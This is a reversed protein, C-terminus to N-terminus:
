FWNVNTVGDETFRFWGGEDEGEWGGTSCRTELALAAYAAAACEKDNNWPSHNEKLWVSVYGGKAAKDMVICNIMPAPRAITQDDPKATLSLQITGNVSTPNSVTFYITLWDIIQETTARKIYVELDPFRTQTM